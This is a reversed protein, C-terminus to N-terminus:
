FFVASLPSFMNSDVVGSLFVYSFVVLSCAVRTPVCLVCLLCFFPCLLAGVSFAPDFPGALALVLVSLDEFCVFDEVLLRTKFLCERGLRQSVFLIQCWLCAGFVGWVIACSCIRSLVFSRNLVFVCLSRIISFFVFVSGWFSLYV